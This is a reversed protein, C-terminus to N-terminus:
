FEGAGINVATAVNGALDTLTPTITDNSAATPISTGDTYTITLVTDGSSWVASGIAGAGDLHTHGNNLALVTDINTADVTIANMAEPFTLILTETADVAGDDNGTSTVVATPAVTDGAAAGNSVITVGNTSQTAKNGSADYVDVNSAVAALNLTTTGPAFGPTTGLTIRVTTNSGAVMAATAGTGLTGGNSLYFDNEDVTGNIHVPENFTIDVYDNATVGATNNDTYAVSSIEPKTTDDSTIKKDTAIGAAQNGWLDKLNPFNDALDITAAASDIKKTNTGSGDLEPTGALTIRLQTSSLWSTTLAAGTSDLDDSGDLVFNADDITSIDAGTDMAESFTLVVYDGANLTGDANADQYKASAITPDTTDPSKITSAAGAVSANGAADKIKSSTKSNISDTGLNISAGTGLTIVLQNPNAGMAFTPSTGLDAGVLTFDSASVENIVIPEDFTLTLTDGASVSKSSDADAFAVGNAKLAPGTTDTQGNYAWNVSSNAAIVNNYVDKINEIKVKYTYGNTANAGTTITITKGDSDLQASSVPLTVASNTSLEITYNAVNEALEKNVKKDFTIKFQNAGLTSGFTATPASQDTYAVMVSATNSVAVNGNTALDKVSDKAFYIKSGDAPNSGDALVGQGATGVGNGDVLTYTKADATAELRATDLAQPNANDKDTVYFNAFTSASYDIKESFTLTMRGTTANYEASVLTPKVTDETYAVAVNSTTGVAEGTVDKTSGSTFTAKRNTVTAGEWNALNPLTDKLTIEVINGDTTTNVTTGATTLSVGTAGTGSLAIATVDLTSVDVDKNFTLALKNSEEDYTVSSLIATQALSIGSVETNYNATTATDAFGNTAVSLTRNSGLAAIATAESSPMTLTLTTKDSSWSATASVTVQVTSTGDTVSFKTKDLKTTSLPENFNVVLQKSAESYTATLIEPATTDTTSVGVFAKASNAVIQNGALDAIKTATSNNVVFYYDSVALTIDGTGVAVTLTKGDAALKASSNAATLATPAGGAVVDKISYNAVDEAAAKNVKENFVVKLTKADIPMVEFTPVAKDGAFEVATEGNYALVYDTAKLAPTTDALVLTVHTSDKLTASSVTLKQSAYNKKNIVFKDANVTGSYDAKLTLELTTANIASVSEVELAHISVLDAQAAKIAATAADVEEQTNSGTVVNATVVAQYAAWSEATFDAEAVKALAANYAALDAQDMPTEADLNEYKETTGDEKHLTIEGLETKVEDAIKEGSQLGYLGDFEDGALDYYIKEPDGGIANIAKDVEAQVDPNTLTLVDFADNGVVLIDSPLAAFATGTSALMTAALSLSVIKKSNKM